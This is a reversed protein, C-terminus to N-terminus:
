ILTHLLSIFVKFKGFGLLCMFVLAIFRHIGSRPDCCRCGSESLENDRQQTVNNRRSVNEEDDSIIPLEDDRHHSM